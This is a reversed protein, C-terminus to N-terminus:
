LVLKGLRPLIAFRLRLLKWCWFTVYVTYIAFEGQM